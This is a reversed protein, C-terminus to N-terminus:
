NIQVKNKGKNQINIGAVNFNQNKGLVSLVKIPGQGTPITTNISYVVIGSGPINADNKNRTRNEIVIAESTSTPIVVLKTGGKKHMPSLEITKNPKGCIIEKDKIWGIVYKEWGFFDTGSPMYSMVSWRGAFNDGPSKGLQSVDYLDVLGFGHGMEHIVSNHAFAGFTFLESGITIGNTLNKGDVPIGGTFAILAKLEFAMPNSLVLFGNVKSFDIKADAKSVVETLFATNTADNNLAYNSYYTSPNNMTVWFKAPIFQIKVQGYSANTYFNQAEESFLELLGEAYNKDLAPQDPYNAFLVQIKVTGKNKLRNAPRPFGLSLADQRVNQLKCASTSSKAPIQFTLSALLTVLIIGIRNSKNEIIKM